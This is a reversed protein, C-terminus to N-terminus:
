TFLVCSLIGEGLNFAEQLRGRMKIIEPDDPRARVDAAHFSVKFSKLRSFGLERNGVVLRRAREWTDDGASLAIRSGYLEERQFSLYVTELMTPVAGCTSILSIFDDPLSLIPENLARPWNVLRLHKLSPLASLDLRNLCLRLTGPVCRSLNLELWRLSGAFNPLLSPVGPEEGRPLTVLINLHELHILTPRISELTMFRALLSNSESHFHLRSATVVRHSDGRDLDVHLCRQIFNLTPRWDESFHVILLRELHLPGLLHYGSTDTLRESVQNSYDRSLIDRVEERSCANWDIMGETVEHLVERELSTREDVSSLSSVVHFLKLNPLHATIHPILPSINNEVRLSHVYNGVPPGLAKSGGEAVIALLAQVRSANNRPFAYGSGRAASYDLKVERFLYRRCRPVLARCTLALSALTLTADCEYRVLDVIAELLEQPISGDLWTDSM